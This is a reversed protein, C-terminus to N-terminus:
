IKKFPKIGVSPISFFYSNFAFLLLLMYIGREHSFSFQNFPAIAIARATMLVKRIRTYLLEGFYNCRGRLHDPSRKSYQTQSLYSQRLGTGTTGQLPGLARWPIDCIPRM